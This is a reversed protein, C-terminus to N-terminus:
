AIRVVTLTASPGGTATIDTAGTATPVLTIVDNATLNTIYSGGTSSTTSLPRQTAAQTVGNIGISVNDTGTAGTATNVTYSVLYTGTAPVTLSNTSATLGNNTLVTPVTLATGSTVTQTATNYLTANQNVLTGAPGQPGQPGVPGQPGTAGTAGTAGTLGIPGQPGTAGTAGTLGIPGQPGTAGTAGTPGQPGVPGQPGIPGAPGVPGTPGPVGIYTTNSNRRCGCGSNYFCM